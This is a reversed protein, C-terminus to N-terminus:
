QGNSLWLSMPIFPVSVTPDEEVDLEPLEELPPEEPPLLEPLLVARAVLLRSM